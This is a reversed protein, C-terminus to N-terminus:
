WGSLFGYRIRSGSIRRHLFRRYDGIGNSFKRDFVQGRLINRVARWLVDWGACLYPVLYLFLKGIGEIPLLWVTVLLIASCFIRFLMRKQAKTM